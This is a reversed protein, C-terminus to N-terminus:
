GNQAEKRNSQFHTSTAGAHRIHTKLKMQSIAVQRFNLKVSSVNAALKTEAANAICTHM